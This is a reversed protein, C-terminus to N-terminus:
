VALPLPEDIEGAGHADLFARAITPDFQSGACREIEALAAGAPLAPRYPRVSTM